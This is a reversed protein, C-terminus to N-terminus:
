ESLPQPTVTPVVALRAVVQRNKGTIEQIRSPRVGAQLIQRLQEDQQTRAASLKAREDVLEETIKRSKKTLSGVRSEAQLIQENQADIDFGLTALIKDELSRKAHEAARDIEEITTASHLATTEETFDLSM